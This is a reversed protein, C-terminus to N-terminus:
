ALCHSPARPHADSNARTGLLLSAHRSPPKRELSSYEARGTCRRCCSSLCGSRRWTTGAALCPRPARRLISPQPDPQRRSRGPRCDGVGPDLRVAGDGERTFRHHLSFVEVGAFRASLRLGTEDLLDVHDRTTVRLSPDRGFAEVIRFKVGPEISGDPRRTASYAIHDFPHWLLYRPYERGEVVMTGEINQFWWALMEPTVWRLPAHRITLLLRRDPLRRLSTQASDLSRLPAILPRPEPLSRDGIGLKGLLRRVRVKM